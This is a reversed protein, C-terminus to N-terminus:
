GRLHRIGGRGTEEGCDEHADSGAVDRTGNSATVVVLGNGDEQQDEGEEQPDLTQLQAGDGPTSQSGEEVSVHNRRPSAVDEDGVQQRQVGKDQDAHSPVAGSEVDAVGGPVSEARERAHLDGKNTEKGDPAAVM